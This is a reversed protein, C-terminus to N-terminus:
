EQQEGPVEQVRGSDEELQSQTASKEEKQEEPQDQYYPYMITM